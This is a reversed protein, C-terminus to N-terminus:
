KAEETCTRHLQRNCLHQYCYVYCSLLCCRGDDEDEHEDKSEEVNTLLTSLSDRTHLTISIQRM